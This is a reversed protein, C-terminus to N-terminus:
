TETNGKKEPAAPDEPGPDNRKKLERVKEVIELIFSYDNDTIKRWEIRKLAKQYYPDIDFEGLLIPLVPKHLRMATDFEYRVEDKTQSSASLLILFADCAEIAATEHLRYDEGIPIDMPFRWTFIDRKELEKQIQKAVAQNNSTYSLFVLPPREPREPLSLEKGWSSTIWSVTEDDLDDFFVPDERSGNGRLFSADTYFRFLKLLFARANRFDEHFLFHAELEPMRSRIEQPIDLMPFCNLEYVLPSIHFHKRMYALVRYRLNRTRMPEFPRTMGNPYTIQYRGEQYSLATGSRVELVFIGIHPDLLVVDAVAGDFDMQFGISIYDPLEEQLFRYVSEETVTLGEPVSGILKAM